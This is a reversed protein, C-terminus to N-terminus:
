PVGKLTGLGFRKSIVPSRHKLLNQAQASVHMGDAPLRQYVLCFTQPAGTSLKAKSGGRTVFTGALCRSDEFVLSFPFSNRKRRGTRVIALEAERIEKVIASEATWAAASKPNFNLYM